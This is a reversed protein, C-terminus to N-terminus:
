ECIRNAKTARLSSIIECHPLFVKTFCDGASFKLLKWATHISQRFYEFTLPM